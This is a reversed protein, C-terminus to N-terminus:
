ICPELPAANLMERLTERVHTEGQDRGQMKALYLLSPVVRTLDICSADLDIGDGIDVSVVTGRVDLGLPECIARLKAAYEARQEETEPEM